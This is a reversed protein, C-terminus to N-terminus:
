TQNSDALEDSLTSMEERLQGLRDMDGSPLVLFAAELSILVFEVASCLLDSLGAPDPGYRLAEVEGEADKDVLAELDRITTHASQSFYAYATNYFDLMGAQEAYWHISLEKIGGAEVISAADAHFLEIQKTEETTRKFTRLLMLKQFLKRRNLDDAQMYKAAVDDSRAIAVIRFTVELVKRSLLTAESSLGREGTLICAQFATLLRPLMSSVLVQQRDSERVETAFVFGNAFVNVAEALKIARRHRNRTEAVVDSMHHCLFMADTLAIPM